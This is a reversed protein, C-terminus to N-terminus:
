RCRWLLWVMKPDRATVKVKTCQWWSWVSSKAVTHGNEVFVILKRMVIHSHAINDTYNIFWSIMDIKKWWQSDTKRVLPNEPKCTRINMYWPRIIQTLNGKCLTMLKAMSKLRWSAWTIHHGKDLLHADQPHQYKVWQPRTVGYPSLSRPWCQSLYHSTAQRCWAMVQVLTSKDDTLDLLM